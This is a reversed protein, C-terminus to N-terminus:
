PTAGVITIQLAYAVILLIVAFAFAAGGSHARYEDDGLDDNQM